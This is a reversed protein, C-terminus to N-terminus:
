AQVSDAAGGLQPLPRRDSFVGGEQLPGPTGVNEGLAVASCFINNAELSPGRGRSHARVSGGFAAVAGEPGRTGVRAARLRLGDETGAASSSTLGTCHSQGM